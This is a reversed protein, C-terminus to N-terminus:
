IRLKALILDVVGAPSLAGIDVRLHAEAYVQNRAAALRQISGVPDSRDLLPREGEQVARAAFLAVDGDLWIVTCRALLRARTAPSMFAGGGTAIVQPPREVLGAILDREIRRFAEEGHRAFIEPISLAGDAAIAADTDAFPL